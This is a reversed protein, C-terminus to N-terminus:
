PHAGKSAYATKRIRSRALDRMASRDRIEIMGDDLSLWGRREFAVLHEAVVEPPTGLAVSVTRRTQDADAAETLDALAGALRVDVRRSATEEVVVSLQSVRSACANFVAARFNASVNMLDDFSARCAANNVKTGYERIDLLGAVEDPFGKLDPFALRWQRTTQMTKM